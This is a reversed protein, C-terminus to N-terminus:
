RRMKEIIIAKAKEISDPDSLDVHSDVDYTGKCRLVNSRPSYDICIPGGDTDFMLCYWHGGGDLYKIERVWNYFQDPEKMPRGLVSEAIGILLGKAEAKTTM